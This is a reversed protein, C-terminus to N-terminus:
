YGLGLKQAEASLEDLTQARAADIKRKYAILDKVMVRRHTGIKRFPIEGAKMQAVIFPRSVGLLDAAEQTTMEKHVPILTVANGAAMHELLQVLLRVAAAPLQLHEGPVNGDIRLGLTGKRGRSLSPITRRALEVDAPSPVVPESKDFALRM